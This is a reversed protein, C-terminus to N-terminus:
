GHLRRLFAMSTPQFPLQRQESMKAVCSLNQPELGLGHSLPFILAFSIFVLSNGIIWWLYSLLSTGTGRLLGVMVEPLQLSASIVAPHLLAWSGGGNRLTQLTLTTVKVVKLPPM